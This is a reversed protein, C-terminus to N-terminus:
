GLSAERGAATLDGTAGFTGSRGFLHARSATSDHVILARTRVVSVTRRWVAVRSRAASRWVARKVFISVIPAARAQSPSSGASGSRLVRFPGRISASKRPHVRLPHVRILHSRIRVALVSAPAVLILEFEAHEADGKAGEDTNM